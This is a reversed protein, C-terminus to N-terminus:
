PRDTILRQQRMLCRSDIYWYYTLLLLPKKGHQTAGNVKCSSQMKLLLHMESLSLCTLASLNLVGPYILLPHSVPADSVALENAYKSRCSSKRKDANAKIDWPTRWGM